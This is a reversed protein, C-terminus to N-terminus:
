LLDMDSQTIGKEKLTELRPSGLVSPSKALCMHLTQLMM